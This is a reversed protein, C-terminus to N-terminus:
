EEEDNSEQLEATLQQYREQLHEYTTLATQVLPTPTTIQEPEPELNYFPDRDLIKNWTYTAIVKFTAIVPSALIAGLLGFASAGVLVGLLVVVPPLDIASGVIRPTILNGELQQILVFLGTVILLFTFNSVPLYTSGQVVAVTGAPIYALIPGLNPIINLVGTIIGLLFAGPLGVATGGLWSILSLILIVTIQGRFYASWVRLVKDLLSEFEQRHNEPVMDVAGRYFRPADISLYISIVLTVVIYFALSSIFTAVVGAVTGLPGLASMIYGLLAEISPLEEPTTGALIELAPDVVPALSIEFQLFRLTRLDQLFEEAMSARQQLWDVFADVNIDRVADIAVPVLLVPVLAVVILLLIYTTITALVRPFRLRRELFRVIPLLLFALIAALIIAGFFRRALSLAALAILVLAIAAIYKTAPRWNTDM